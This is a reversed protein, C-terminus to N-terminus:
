VSEKFPTNDKRMKRTRGKRKKKVTTRKNGSKHGWLVDGIYKTQCKKKIILLIRMNNIFLFFFFLFLPGLHVLEIYKKRKGM